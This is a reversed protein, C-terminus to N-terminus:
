ATKSQERFCKYGLHHIWYLYSKSTILAYDCLIPNSYNPRDDTLIITDEHSFQSLFKCLDEETDIREDLESVSVIHTNGVIYSLSDFDADDANLNTLFRQFLYKRM